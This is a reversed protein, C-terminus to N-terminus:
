LIIYVSAIWAAFLRTLMTGRRPAIGRALVIFVRQRQNFVQNFVLWIM